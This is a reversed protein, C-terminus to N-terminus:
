VTAHSQPQGHTVIHGRSFHRVLQKIFHLAAPATSLLWEFVPTETAGRNARFLLPRRDVSSRRAMAVIRHAQVDALRDFFGDSTWSM